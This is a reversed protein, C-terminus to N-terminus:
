IAPSFDIKVPSIVRIEGYVVPRSNSMQGIVVPITYIYQERFPRKPIKEPRHLDVQFEGHQPNRLFRFRMEQVMGEQAGTKADLYALMTGVSLSATYLHPITAGNIGGVCEYFSKTSEPTIERIKDEKKQLIACAMQPMQPYEEGLLLSIDAVKRDEINGTLTIEAGQLSENYGIEWSIREDPYIPDGLKTNQGLILLDKNTDDNRLWYENLKKVIRRAVQEGNSCTHAGMMIVDKLKKGKFSVSKAVEPDYHIPNFDKNLNGFQRFSERTATFSESQQALLEEIESEFGDDLPRLDRGTLKNVIATIGKLMTNV